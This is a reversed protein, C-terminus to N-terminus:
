CQTHTSNRRQTHTSAKNEKYTVVWKTPKLVKQARAGTPVMSMTHDPVPGEKGVKTHHNAQLEELALREDAASRATGQAREDTLVDQSIINVKGSPSAGRLM